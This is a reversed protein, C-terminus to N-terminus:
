FNICIPPYDKINEKLHSYCSRVFYNVHRSILIKINKQKSNQIFIFDEYPHNIFKLDYKELLDYKFAFSIGVNKMQIKTTLPHPVVNGNQYMMRFIILEPENFTQIDDYLHQIYDPHLTDDDDCFAIYNTQIKNKLIYEFGINRVCGANNKKSEVGTKDIQIFHISHSNIYINSEVGDFIILAYWNKGNLNLLSDITKQISHRGISPIIFFVDFM